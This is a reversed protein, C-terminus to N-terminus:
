SIEDSWFQFCYNATFIIVYKGILSKGIDVAVGDVFVDLNGIVVGVAEVITEPSRLMAKQLAPLLVEQVDVAQMLHLLDYSGQIFNANPRAKVSILSKIFSDLM